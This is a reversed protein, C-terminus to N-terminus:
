PCIHSPFRHQALTVADNITWFGDNNLDACYEKAAYVPIMALRDDEDVIGSCDFDVSNFQVGLDYPTVSCDVGSISFTITPITTCSGASLPVQFSTFGEVDTNLDAVFTGVSGRCDCFGELQLFMDHAPYNAIPIGNELVQGTITM